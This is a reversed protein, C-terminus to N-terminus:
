LQRIVVCIANFENLIWFLKKERPHCLSCKWLLNLANQLRFFLQTNGQMKEMFIASLPSFEFDLVCCPPKDRKSRHKLFSSYCYMFPMYKSTQLWDKREQTAFLVKHANETYPGVAEVIKGYQCLIKQLPGWIMMGFHTEVSTNWVVVILWERQWWLHVCVSSSM